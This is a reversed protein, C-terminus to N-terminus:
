TITDVATNGFMRDIKSGVSKMLHKGIVHGFKMMCFSSM